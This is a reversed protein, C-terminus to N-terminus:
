HVHTAAARGLRWELITKMALTVLAMLTLLSAVAFSAAFAYDNYLIEIHLPMTDTLGIIHGSVVAVAGFEGIARGNCLLVGYLLGWKINPLTVRLFTQWGNAGLVIAAEEQTTGQSDMLPILERAVFPLTVFLTALAIGPVAFIIKIGHGVLWTGFLGQLGFLLVYVLGAVVPSVSFPLDILTLLLSKGPFEFKTIAWAAALGFATNLPVCIAAILVTLRIAALAEPETLAAFYVRVGQSFAEAFVVILPLVLFLGLFALAIALLLGRVLAPESLPLRARPPVPIAGAPPNALALADAV